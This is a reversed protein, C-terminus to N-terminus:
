PNREWAPGDMKMLEQRAYRRLDRTHCLIANKVPNMRYYSTGYAEMDNDSYGLLHGEYSSDKYKEPADPDGYSQTIKALEHMNDEQGPQGYILFSENKTFTAQTHVLRGAAVAEDLEARAPHPSLSDMMFDEITVAHRDGQLLASSLESFVSDYGRVPQIGGSRNFRYHLSEESETRKGEHLYEFINKADDAATEEFGPVTYFHYTRPLSRDYAGRILRGEEVATDLKEIDTADSRPWFTGLPKAGALLLDAEHGSHPGILGPKALLMFLPRLINKIGFDIKM